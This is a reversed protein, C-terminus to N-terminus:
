IITDLVEKSIGFDILVVNGNRILFNQPKLDRHVIKNSSLYLVVAVM